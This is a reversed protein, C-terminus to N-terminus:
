ARGLTGGAAYGLRAGGISRGSPISDAHAPVPVAAAPDAGGTGLQRQPTVSGSNINSRPSLGGGIELRSEM